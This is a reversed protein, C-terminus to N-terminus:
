CATTQQNYAADSDVYDDLIIVPLHPFQNKFKKDNTIFLTCMVQMASVAHLADPVKLSPINARLEAAKKFIAETLNLVLENKKPQFAVLYDKVLDINNKRIPLVLCEHVTVHNTAITLTKGKVRDWLPRLLPYYKPHKEVSYIYSNTELYVIGTAPLALQGM